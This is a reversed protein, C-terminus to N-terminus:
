ANKRASGLKERGVRQDAIRKAVGNARSSQRTSVTHTIKELRFSLDGCALASVVVSDVVTKRRMNKPTSTVASRANSCSEGKKLQELGAVNQLEKMGDFRARVAGWSYKGHQNYEQQSPSKGLQEAVDRYDDVLESKSVFRPHDEGTNVPPEKNRVPIDHRDLWDLVTVDSCGLREGIDAASLGEEVYLKYLTNKDQWSSDAM